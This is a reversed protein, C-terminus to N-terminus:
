LRFILDLLTERRIQRSQRDLKRYNGRLDARVRRDLTVILQDMEAAANRDLPDDYLGHALTILM